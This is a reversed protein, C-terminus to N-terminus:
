NAARRQQAYRGVAPWGRAVSMIDEGGAKGQVMTRTSAFTGPRFTTATIQLWDRNANGVGTFEIEFVTLPTAGDPTVTIGAAVNPLAELEFASSAPSAGAKFGHEFGKEWGDNEAERERALM